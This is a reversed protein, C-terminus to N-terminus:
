ARAVRDPVAAQIDGDLLGILVARGAMQAALSRGRQAPREIFGRLASPERGAGVAGIVELGGLPDAPVTLWAPKWPSNTDPVIQGRTLLVEESAM